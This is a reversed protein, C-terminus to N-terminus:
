RFGTFLRDLVPEMDIEVMGEPVPDDLVVLRGAVKCLMDAAEHIWASRGFDPSHDSQRGICAIICPFVKAMDNRPDKIAKQKDGFWKQCCQAHAIIGSDAL